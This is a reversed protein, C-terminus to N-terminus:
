DSTNETRIRQRPLAGGNLYVDYRVVRGAYSVSVGPAVPAAKRLRKVVVRHGAIARAIEVLEGADSDNGVLLRCIRMEKKALASKGSPEFMTDIYVVDPASDSTMARLVNRSDGRRITIRDVIKQLRADDASRARALGDRLLAFLVASREVATVRCGLCALLFADRGLGATADFVTPSGRKMGVALALPQRRGGTSLRRFAATGRVFDVRIARGLESDAPVLSLGDAGARLMLDFQHRTEISYESMSLHLEEALEDARAQYPPGEAVVAICQPSLFKAPPQFEM